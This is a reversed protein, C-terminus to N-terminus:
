GNEEYWYRMFLILVRREQVFYIVFEELRKNVLFGLVYSIFFKGVYWIEFKGIYQGRGYRRKFIFFDYFIFM